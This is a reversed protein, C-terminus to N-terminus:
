QLTVGQNPNEIQVQLGAIEDNLRDIDEQPDVLPTSYENSRLSMLRAVELQKRQIQEVTSLPMTDRLSDIQLFREEVSPSRSGFIDWEWHFAM